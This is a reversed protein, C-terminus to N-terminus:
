LWGGRPLKNRPTIGVLKERDDSGSSTVTLSPIISPLKPSYSVKPRARISSSGDKITSPIDMSAVAPRSQSEMSSSSTKTIVSTTATSKATTSTAIPKATNTATTSTAIPKAANTTTTTTITTTITTATTITATPKIDTSSTTSITATKMTVSTTAATTIVPTTTNTTVSMTSIPLTTNDITSSQTISQGSTSSQVSQLPAKRRIVRPPSSRLPLLPATAKTVEDVFDVSSRTQM